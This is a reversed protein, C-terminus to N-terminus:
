VRKEELRFEDEVQVVCWGFGIGFTDVGESVMGWLDSDDEEEAGNRARESAGESESAECSIILDDVGVVWTM